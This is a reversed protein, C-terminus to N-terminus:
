PANQLEISYALEDAKVYPDNSPNVPSPWAVNTAKVKTRVFSIRSENSVQPSAPSTIDMALLVQVQRLVDGPKISFSALQFEFIRFPHGSRFETRVKTSIVGTGASFNQWSSSGQNQFNLGLVFNLNNQNPGSITFSGDQRIGETLNWRTTSVPSGTVQSTSTSSDGAPYFVGAVNLNPSSFMTKLPTALLQLDQSTLTSGADYGGASGASSVGAPVGAGGFAGFGGMGAAMGEQSLPGSQASEKSEGREAVGPGPGSDFLYPAAPFLEGPQGFPVEGEPNVAEATGTAPNASDASAVSDAAPAAPASAAAAANVTAGESPATLAFSETSLEARLPASGTSDQEQPSRNVPSGTQVPGHFLLYFATALGLLFFVKSLVSKLTSWSSLVLTSM